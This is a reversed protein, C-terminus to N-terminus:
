TINQEAMLLTSAVEAVPIVQPVTITSVTGGSVYASYDTTDLNFSITTPSIASIPIIKGNVGYTFSEPTTFEMGTIDELVVSQGKTFSHAGVTVVMPSANTIATINLHQIPVFPPYGALDANLSFTTDSLVTITYVNNIKEENTFGCQVLRVILGTLYGHPAMTTVVGPNTLTINSIVNAVPKWESIITM